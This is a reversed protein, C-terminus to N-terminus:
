VFDLFRPQAPQLAQTSVAFLVASKCVPWPKTPLPTERLIASDNHNPFVDLDDPGVIGSDGIDGM